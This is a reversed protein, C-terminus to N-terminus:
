IDGEVKLHYGDKKWSALKCMKKSVRGTSDNRAWSICNKGGGPGDNSAYARSPLIGICLPLM